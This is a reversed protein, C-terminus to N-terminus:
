VRRLAIAGAVAVLLAFLMAAAPSLTPVPTV